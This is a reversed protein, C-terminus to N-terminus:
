SNKLAKAIAQGFATAAQPGTATILDRDVVVQAHDYNAQAQKFIGALKQDEDWGTVNRGSLLGANALIRPAICIAGWLQTTSQAAQRMIEHVRAQDLHRLAGPGGILFIGAYDGPNVQDLTLDVAVKTKQDAAIATGAQDSAVKVTMATLTAAPHELAQRTHQYETAQFGQSAIILLIPKM